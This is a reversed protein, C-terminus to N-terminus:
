KSYKDLWGGSQKTNYNTFNTLQNLKILQNGDKAIPFETVKKGKFKYNTPNNAKMHKIDGEDSIGIVNFPVGQMTINNSGIETIEGPHAWQGLDDKIVEGNKASAKTKKAYPGNSPAPNNTRAYTFGTAGPLAGGMQLKNLSNEYAQAEGELSYPNEYQQRDVIKNFLINNPVFRYEPNSAKLNNIDIEIEKLKRNHFSGYVDDSSVMPPKKFLPVAGEHVIDYNSGLNDFQYKHFKEHNIVSQRPAFNSSPTLVIRDLRDDYYTREGEPDYIIGNVPDPLDSPVIDGDQAKPVYNVPYVNGGMQFQGGWAGNYDFGKNTTGLFEGGDKYKDLWNM